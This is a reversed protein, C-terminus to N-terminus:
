NEIRKIKAGLDQLDKEINEYGRDLYKLGSVESVGNAGLAAVLLAATGRLDCGCVKAGFLDKVGNVFAMNSKVKINAGMKLLEGVHKFRKQFVREEFVTNGNAKSAVAMIIPQCDTPFGPYPLTVIKKLPKLISPSRLYIESNNFKINCGLKGFTNILSNLHKYNVDKLLIEGGSIASAAMFTVAAIRDPMISFETGTLKKVGEIVILGKKLKYIKAGCANLFKILDYIEPEKAANNIITIGDVLVSALIINETAGVSPYPFNIKCAKLKNKVNCKINGDYEEILVGMNKLFKLHLDIPRPGLKCGGPFFMESSNFRGLLSGLFIISSRMEKMLFDPVDFKNVNRTDIIIDSGFFNVDAGLYELIKISYDVDLIKPCNHLICQGSCLITSALIPLISNKAGQILVEGNLKKNGEVLLRSLKIWGRM